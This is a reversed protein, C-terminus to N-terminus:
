PDSPPISPRSAKRRVLNTVSIPTQSRAVLSGTPSAARTTTRHYLSPGVPLCVANSRDGHGFSAGKRNPTVPKAIPGTRFRRCIQVTVHPNDKRSNCIGRAINSHTSPALGDANQLRYICRLLANRVHPLAFQRVRFRWWEHRESLDSVIFM